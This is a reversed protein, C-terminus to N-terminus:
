GTQWTSDKIQLVGDEKRQDLYLLEYLSADNKCLLMAHIKIILLSYNVIIKFNAIIM